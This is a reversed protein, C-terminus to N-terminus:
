DEPWEEQAPNMAHGLNKKLNKEELIKYLSFM